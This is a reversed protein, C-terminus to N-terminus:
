GAGGGELFFAKWISIPKFEISMNTHTHTYKSKFLIQAFFIVHLKGQVVWFNVWILEAITELHTNEDVAFIIKLLEYITFVKNKKLEIFKHNNNDNSHL